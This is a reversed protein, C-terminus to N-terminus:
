GNAEGGPAMPADQTSCVAPIVGLTDSEVSLVASRVESRRGDPEPHTFFVILARDRGDPDAILPVVDAHHAVVASGDVESVHDLLLGHRAEQRTWSSVGDPSRHVALGRWEDVVMWWWLGLRFVKPGEHPRGGVALGTERWTTVDLPTRTEASWTMSGRREDKFWLRYYGDQTCAVAADIVRSSNIPVSGLWHWSLLDFSEYQEISSDGSWDSHVGDVVSLLMLWRDDVWVIEPAWHTQPRGARVNAELGEVIGEYVWTIGGDQSRARGIRTDHIWEVGPGDVDARRQTYFLLWGGGVTDEVLVPDTPGDHVPDHYPTAFADPRLNTV